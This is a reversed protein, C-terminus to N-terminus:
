RTETRTTCTDTRRTTYRSQLLSPQLTVEDGGEEGGEAGIFSLTAAWLTDVSYMIPLRLHNPVGPRFVASMVPVWICWSALVLKSYSKKLREYSSALRETATGKDGLATNVVLNFAPIDVFPLAVLNTLLVKPLTKNAGFRRELMSFFPYWFCFAASGVYASVTLSRTINLSSKTELSPVPASELQQALVDGLFGFTIGSIVATAKDQKEMKAQMQQLARIVVRKM